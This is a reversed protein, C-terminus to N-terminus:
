CSETARTDARIRVCLCCYQWVTFNSQLRHAQSGGSGAQETRQKGTAGGCVCVCVFLLGAIEFQSHFDTETEM